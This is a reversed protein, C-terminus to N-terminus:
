MSNCPWRPKPTDPPWTPVAARDRDTVAVRDGRALAQSAMVRGFGTACGTIFWTRATM